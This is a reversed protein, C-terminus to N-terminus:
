SWRKQVGRRAVHIHQDDHGNSLREQQDVVMSHLGTDRPKKVAPEMPHSDVDSMLSTTKQSRRIIPINDLEEYTLPNCDDLTRTDMAFRQFSNLLVERIIPKIGKLYREVTAGMLKYVETTVKVAANRVEGNPSTFAQHVFSMLVESMFGTKSNPQVGFVPIAALLWQLRGFVPRWISQSKPTKLMHHAVIHLGVERKSALFTLTESAADRIRVNSEGLKDLLITVFAAVSHQIERPTVEGSYKTVYEKLLHLSGYYINPVRDNIARLVVLDLLKLNSSPDGTIGRSQLLKVIHQLAKDRLQWQKSCLCEVYYLDLIGLLPGMEGRLADTLPEPVSTDHDHTTQSGNQEPVSGSFPFNHLAAKPEPEINAFKPHPDVPPHLDGNHQGSKEYQDTSSHLTSLQQHGTKYHDDVPSDVITSHNAIKGSYDLPPYTSASQQFPEAHPHIVGIQQDPKGFNQEEPPHTTAQNSFSAYQEVHALHLSATKQTGNSAHIDAHPLHLTTNKQQSTSAYQQEVQPYLTIPKHQSTSAYYEVHPAHLIAPKVDEDSHRLVEKGKWWPFVTSLVGSRKEGAQITPISNQPDCATKARVVIENTSNDGEMRGSRKDEYNEASSDMVMAQHDMSMFIEERPLIKPYNNDSTSVDSHKSSSDPNESVYSLSDQGTGDCQRLREIELKCSKAADYDEMEVAARKRLELQKIQEGLGKLREILNKLRKAEDYDEDQVATVKEKQLRHIRAATFSDVAHLNADVVKSSPVQIRPTQLLPSYGRQRIQLLQHEDLPEGTIILAVLGVQNYANLKNNYCNHLVLRIVAAPADVHISKLERAQHGSRDNPDLSLYGLRKMQNVAKENHIWPTTLSVFVEVKSPIKFEHCLLQMNIIRSPRQLELTLEQPYFCFRSSQWGRGQIGKNLESAPYDEDQGSSTVVAFPLSRGGSNAHTFHDISAGPTMSARLNIIKNEGSRERESTGNEM